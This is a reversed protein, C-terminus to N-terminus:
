KSGGKKTATVEQLTPAPAPPAKLIIEGANFKRLGYELLLVATQSVTIGAKKAAATVEEQTAKPVAISTRPATSPENAMHSESNIQPAHAKCSNNLIIKM